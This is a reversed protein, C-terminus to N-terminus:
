THVVASIFGGVLGPGVPGLLLVPVPNLRESGAYFLVCNENIIDYINDKNDNLKRGSLLEAMECVIPDQIVIKKINEEVHLDEENNTTSNTNENIWLEDRCTDSVFFYKLIDTPSVIEVSDILQSHAGLIQLIKIVGERSSLTPISGTTWPCLIPFYDYDSESGLVDCSRGSQFLRAETDLLTQCIKYTVTNDKFIQADVCSGPIIVGGNVLTLQPAFIFDKERDKPLGFSGDWYCYWDSVLENLFNQKRTLNDANLYEKGPIVSSLVKCQTYSRAM